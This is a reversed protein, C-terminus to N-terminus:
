DVLLREAGAVALCSVFAVTGLKGGAGAFVTAAAVFVLGCVAGAVAVHAESGLRDASSMGVFSACFTVAALTEGVASVAPLAVGAALGVVASGVVAGWGFRLSAVVAAVAGAAGLPPALWATSAPLPDGSGFGAGTLAVVSACGFLALTGLKGGFGAFVDTSAVYAVGSVAGAVAVYEAGPFVQTSAMGVFSGCYAAADVEPLALGALLGVFASAVVPGLGVEVHLVYTLVAAAPVALGDAADAVGLGPDDDVALLREGEVLAIVGAALVAAAAGAAATADAELLAAALLAGPTALLALYGLPRAFRYM